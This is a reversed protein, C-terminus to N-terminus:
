DTADLGWPLRTVGSELRNRRLAEYTIGALLAVGATGLMATSWWPGPVRRVLEELATALAAAGLTGLAAHTPSRWAIRGALASFALTHPLLRLTAHVMHRFLHPSDDTALIGGVSAGVLGAGLGVALALAGLRGRGRAVLWTVLAVAALWVVNNLYALPLRAGPRRLAAALTAVMLEPVRVLPRLAVGLLVATLVRPARLPRALQHAVATGVALPTFLAALYRPLPHPLLWLAALMALVGAVVYGNTDRMPVISMSVPEDTAAARLVRRRLAFAAGAAVLSWLMTLEIAYSGGRKALLLAVGNYAVHAVVAVAVGILTVRRMPLSSVRAHITGHAITDGLITGFLAHALVPPIARLLVWELYVPAQGIASGFYVFNERIAFGVGVGVAATVIERRDRHDDGRSWILALLLSKCVEETVPAWLVKFADSAGDIGIRRAGGALEYAIWAATAGAALHRVRLAHPAPAVMLAIGYAVGCTAGVVGLLALPRTWLERFRDAYLTVLAVGLAGSALSVLVRRRIRSDSV